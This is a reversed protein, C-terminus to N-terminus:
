CWTRCTSGRRLTPSRCRAGRPAFPASRSVRPGTSSPSLVGKLRQGSVRRLWMGSYDVLAAEHIAIHLGSALRSHSRRIRRRAETFPTRNYLYEYRNWEGGPDVVRHRTRRGRVGHAGRRPRGAHAHSSRFNTVFVSAMTSCAFCWPWVRTGGESSPYACNTATIASTAGSAGPSSGPTTSRVGRRGGIRFQARAQCCGRPHLRATVLRRRTRDAARHSVRSAGRRHGSARGRPRRRAPGDRRHPLSRASLASRSVVDSRPGHYGLRVAGIGRVCPLGATAPSGSPARHMPGPPWRRAAVQVRSSSDVEVQATRDGDLYQIRARNGPWRRRHTLRRVIGADQRVGAVLQRGRRLAPNRSRASRWRPSRRMCRISADFNAVADHDGTGWCASTTTARWRARSCTRARTRTSATASSVRSMAPISWRARRAAPVAHRERADRAQAAGCRSAGSACRSHGLARGFDHNGTFTPLRLAAPAGGEYLAMMRTCARSCRPAAQRGAGARGRERLRLGAGVAAKDVRTHRAVRGRGRTKAGRSRRLHPLQPHREGRARELMAPVFPQWFEPNVHRATDIRFGDIRFRDIWDGFVEIFGQVVRPNETMLDDLGVFDGM